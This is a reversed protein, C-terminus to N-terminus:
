SSPSIFTPESNTPYPTRLDWTGLILNQTPTDMPGMVGTDGEGKGLTLIQTLYLGKWVSDSSLSIGAPPPLTRPLPENRLSLLM